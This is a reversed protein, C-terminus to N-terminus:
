PQVHRLRQENASILHDFLWAGPGRKGSVLELATGDRDPCRDSGWRVVSITIAPLM